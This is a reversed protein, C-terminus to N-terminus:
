ESGTSITHAISDPHFSTGVDRGSLPPFLRQFNQSRNELVGSRPNTGSVKGFDTM